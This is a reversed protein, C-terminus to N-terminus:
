FGVTVGATFTVFDGKALKLDNNTYTVGAYVSAKDSLKYPITAGISWYNYNPADKVYVRGYNASFDISLGADPVPLSYGLQFQATTTDLTFDQYVYVGPTFGKLNANLGLYSEYTERHAGTSANMEPYYYMTTGLDLNWKDNLNFKYGLYFDFENDLNKTIPQNTWIGAYFDTYTLEVSPQISEKALEVGRFVYKSAYPFDVTVSYASKPAEAAGLSLGASLALVSLILKKM